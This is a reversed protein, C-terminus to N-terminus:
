INRPIDPIQRIRIADDEAWAVVACAVQLAAVDFARRAGIKKWYRQLDGTRRRYPGRAPRLDFASVPLGRTERWARIGAAREEGQGPAM